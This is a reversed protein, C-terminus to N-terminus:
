PGAPLPSGAFFLFWVEFAIGVVIATFVFMTEISTLRAQGARYHEDRMSRNWIARRQPWGQGGDSGDRRAYLRGFLDLILVYTLVIGPLIAAFTQPSQSWGPTHQGGFQSGVWFWFAPVGFGLLAAGLLFAIAGLITRAVRSASRMGLDIEQKGIARM